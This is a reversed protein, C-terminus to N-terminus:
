SLTTTTTTTPCPGSCLSANIRALQKIIEQLLKSEQSWGTQQPIYSM